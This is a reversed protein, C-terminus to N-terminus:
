IDNEIEYFKNNFVLIVKKGVCILTFADGIFATDYITQMDTDHISSWISGASISSYSYISHYGKQFYLRRINHGHWFEYVDDRKSVLVDTRVTFHRNNQIRLCIYTCFAIATLMLISFLIALVKITMNSVTFSSFSFFLLAPISLFLGRKELKLLYHQIDSVLVVQKENEM